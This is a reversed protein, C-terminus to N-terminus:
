TGGWEGEAERQRHWSLQSVLRQLFETFCHLCRFLRCLTGSLETLSGRNQESELCKLNKKEPNVIPNWKPAEVIDRATRLWSVPLLRTATVSMGLTGHVM